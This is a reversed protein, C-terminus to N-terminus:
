TGQGKDEPLFIDFVSGRGEKSEVTLKGNHAELINSVIALGIGTGHPKTTYYLDFIHPLDESRIGCGTDSVIIHFGNEAKSARAEIGLTGGNGMAEMANLYLNMLVQNMRNPDMSIKLDEDVTTEIAINKESARNEIMKLSDAVLAKVSTTKKQITVPRAFELLQTVVTNLREVEQIMIGSIRADEPNEKYRQSFYTAFGKISSLPNRIEHAIGAALRGVTVLRQNRAIEQRLNDSFARVEVLSEKTSRYRVMLLLLAMGSFALLLLIAGMLIMHQTDAMQAANVSSMDLGVFIILDTEPPDPDAPFHGMMDHMSLHGRDHRNVPHPPAPSFKGYVEFTEQRNESPVLRWQLDDTKSLAKLDLDSGHTGGIFSPNGHALIKGNSNVVMLYEIDPLRSTEFLLRQLKFGAGFRGMMGMRTGAEFSRILAAGKEMLIRASNERQRTIIMVTLGAFIPFLVAFAGVYLWVQTKALFLNKINPFFNTRM